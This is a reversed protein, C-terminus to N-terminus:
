QAVRNSDLQGVRRRPGMGDSRSSLDELPSPEVGERPTLAARPSSLIRLFRAELREATHRWSHKQEAQLRARRGLSRRYSARHALREIAMSLAGEDDQPITIGTGDETVCAQNVPGVAITALGAAKYDLLKLGSYESRGSYVCVGVDCQSLHAALNSLTLHGTFSVHDRLGLSCVIARVNAEEPGSGSLSLTVDAGAHRAKALGRLLMPLGQWRDFSGVFAVRVPVDIVLNGTFARLQDRTLLDVLESGNHVVSVRRPEVQWQEIHRARWGEGTAITHTARQVTRRMLWTSVARQVGGPASGNMELEQPLDGNVELVHPLRLRRAALGGGLGMWGMREYLLDFGKLEQVCARAFRRSDFFSFYPLRCQRQVRRLAREAIYRSAKDFQALPVLRLDEADESVWIRDDLRAVIRVDHGLRSLEAVVSKVHNAPRVSM